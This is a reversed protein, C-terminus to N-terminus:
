RVMNVRLPALVDDVITLISDKAPSLPSRLGRVVPVSTHLRGM